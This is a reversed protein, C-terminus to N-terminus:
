FIVIIKRGTLVYGEVESIIIFGKLPLLCIMAHLVQLPKLIESNFVKDNHCSQASGPM